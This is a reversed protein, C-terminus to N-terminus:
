KMSYKNTDISTNCWYISKIRRFDKDILKKVELQNKENYIKNRTELQQAKSIIEESKESYITMM